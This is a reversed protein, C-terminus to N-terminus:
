ADQDEKENNNRAYQDRKSPADTNTFKIDSVDVGASLLEKRVRDEVGVGAAFVVTSPAVVAVRTEGRVTRATVQVEGHATLISAEVRHKARSLDVESWMARVADLELSGHSSANVRQEAVTTAVASSGNGGLASNGRAEGAQNSVTISSPSAGPDVSTDVISSSGTGTSSDKTGEKSDDGSGGAVEANIAGTNVSAAEPQVAGAASSVEGRVRTGGLDDVASEVVAKVLSAADLPPTPGTAALVVPAVGSPSFGTDSSGASLSTATVPTTPAFVFPVMGAVVASADYVNQLTDEFSKGSGQSAGATDAAVGTSLESVRSAAPTTTLIDM